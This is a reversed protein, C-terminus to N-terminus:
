RQIDNDTDNKLTEMNRDERKKNKWIQIEKVKKLKKM